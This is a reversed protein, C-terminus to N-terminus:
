SYLAYVHDSATPSFHGQETLNQGQNICVYIYLASRSFALQIRTFAADRPFEHINPLM